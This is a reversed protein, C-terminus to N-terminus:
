KKKKHSLIKKKSITVKTKASKTVKGRRASPKSQVSKLKPKKKYKKPAHNSKNIEIIESQAIEEAQKTPSISIVNNLPFGSGQQITHFGKNNRAITTDEFHKRWASANSLFPKLDM